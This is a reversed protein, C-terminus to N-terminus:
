PNCQRINLRYLCTIKFVWIIQCFESLFTHTKLEPPPPSPSPSVRQPFMEQMIRKVVCSFLINCYHTVATVKLWILNTRTTIMPPPVSKSRYRTCISTCKVQRIDPLHWWDLNRLRIPRRPKKFDHDHETTMCRQACWKKWCKWFMLLTAVPIKEGSITHVRLMCNLYNATLYM